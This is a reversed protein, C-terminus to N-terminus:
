KLPQLTISFPRGAHTVKMETLRGAADFSYNVERSPLHKKTKVHLRDIRGDRSEIHISRKNWLWLDGRDEAKPDHRFHLFLLMIDVQLMEILGRRNLSRNVYKKKWRGNKWVMELMNTGMISNFSVQLVHNRRHSVALFGNMGTALHKFEARYIADKGAPLVEPVPLQQAVAPLALLLSFILSFLRM